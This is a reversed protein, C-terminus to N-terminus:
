ALCQDMFNNVSMITMGSVSGYFQKGVNVNDHVYALHNTSGGSISSLSGYFQKSVNGNDPV